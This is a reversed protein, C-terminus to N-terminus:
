PRQGYTKLHIDDDLEWVDPLHNHRRKAIEMSRDVDNTLNETTVVQAESVALDCAKLQTRLVVHVFWEPQMSLQVQFSQRYAIHILPESAM